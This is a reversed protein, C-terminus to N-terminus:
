TQNQGGADAMGEKSLRPSSGGPLIEGQGNLWPLLHRNHAAGTRPLTCPASQQQAEIQGRASFDEIIAQRQATEVILSHTGLKADDRLTGGDEAAGDAVIDRQVDRLNAHLLDNM